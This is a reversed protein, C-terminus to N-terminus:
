SKQEYNFFKLLFKYLIFIIYIFLIPYYIGGYVLSLHPEWFFSICCIYIGIHAEINYFNSISFFQTILRVFIGLILMIGISGFTGFNIYAENIIPLNWSTSTDDPHLIEYERGIRNALNDNPKNKWFLRPIVKSILIKYTEGYYYDVEKPTKDVLILLSSFSHSLRWNNSKLRKSNDLKHAEHEFIDIEEQKIAKTHLDFFIESRQILNLNNFKNLSSRFEVKYSHLGFFLIFLFLSFYISLRRYVIFYILIYILLISAPFVYSSSLIEFFITLFVPLLLFFFKIKKYKIFAYFLISSSVVILPIITQSLSSPIYNIFRNLLTIIQFIFAINILHKYEKFILFNFGDRRPFFNKSGFYGLIFFFLSINILYFTKSITYKNFNNFYNNSFEFSFGYTFFIYLIILPFFPFLNKSKNEILYFYVGAFCLILISISLILSFKDLRFSYNGLYIRNILFLLTFLVFFYIILKRYKYIDM